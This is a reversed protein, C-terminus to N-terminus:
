AAGDKSPRPDDAGAIGGKKGETKLLVVTSGQIHSFAGWKYKKLVSISCVSAQSTYMFIEDNISM